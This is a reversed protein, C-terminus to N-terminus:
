EVVPRTDGDFSEFRSTNAGCDDHVIRHRRYLAGQESWPPGPEKLTSPM